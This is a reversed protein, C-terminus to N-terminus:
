YRYICEALYNGLLALVTYVVYGKLGFISRTFLYVIALTAVVRVVIVRVIELSPRLFFQRRGGGQVCTVLELDGKDDEAFVALMEVQNKPKDLHQPQQQREQDMTLTLEVLRVTREEAVEPQPIQMYLKDAAHDYTADHERELLEYDKRTLSCSEEEQSSKKSKQPTQQARRKAPM